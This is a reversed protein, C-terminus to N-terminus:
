PLVGNERFWNRVASFVEERKSQDISHGEGELITRQNVVKNQELIEQFSASQEPRVVTDASGHLILFPTRVKAAMEGTPAAYGEGISIGSGTIAAAKLLDPASGALGITVFGGMSHGYAALRKPDVEPMKSVLELCTEARRLNEASAGVNASPAGRVGGSHTYDPAICVLGWTAMERAKTLGFSSASGGKGHSILVAPFPGAGEPKLLIGSMVFEGERYTWREGELTFGEPTASPDAVETKPSDPKTGTKESPTSSAKRDFEERTLYGDRDVDLRDFLTSPGRFEDRALKGDKDGDSRSLISDFSLGPGREAASGNITASLLVLAPLIRKMM